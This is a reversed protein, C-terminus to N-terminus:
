ATPLSISSRSANIASAPPEACRKAADEPPPRASSSAAAPCGDVRDGHPLHGVRDPVVYARSELLVDRVGSASEVGPSILLNEFQEHAHGAGGVVVDRGPFRCALLRRM